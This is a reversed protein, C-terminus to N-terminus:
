LKKAKWREYLVKTFFGLSVVLALKTQFTEEALENMPLFGVFIGYIHYIAGIAFWVSVSLGIYRIVHWYWKNQNPLFLTSSIACLASIGGFVLLTWVNVKLYENILFQDMIVPALPISLAWAIIFVATLAIKDVKDVLRFTNLHIFQAVTLLHLTNLSLKTELRLFKLKTYRELGTLTSLQSYTITQWLESKTLNIYTSTNLITKALIKSWYM